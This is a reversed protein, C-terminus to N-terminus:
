ASLQLGLSDIGRRLFAEAIKGLADPAVRGADWVGHIRLYLGERIMASADATITSLLRDGEPGFYFVVGSGAPPGVGTPNNVVFRSLYDRVATGELHAHLGLAIAFTRFSLDPRHDKVAGLVDVMAAQFADLHDRPLDSCQVEIREVRIRVTMLYNFLYVLFHQDGLSGTGRELRIDTLRLGHRELRRYLRDLLAAGDRFLTFEPQPLWAEVALDAKKVELKIAV